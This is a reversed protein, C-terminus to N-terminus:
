WYKGKKKSNSKIKKKDKLDQKEKEMLAKLIKEAEEETKEKM